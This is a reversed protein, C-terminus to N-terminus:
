LETSPYLVDVPFEDFITRFCMLFRNFVTIFSLSKKLFRTLIM